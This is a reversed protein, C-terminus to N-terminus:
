DPIKKNRRVYDLAVLLRSYIKEVEQLREETIEDNTESAFQLEIVGYYEKTNLVPILRGYVVELGVSNLYNACDIPLNINNLSLRTFKNSKYNFLEEEINSLDVNQLRKRNSTIGPKTVEYPVSMKTFHFSGISTGNHFLGVTIRDAATLGRLELLISEIKKRQKIGDKTIYAIVNGTTTQLLRIKTLHNQIIVVFTLLVLLLNLISINGTEQYTKITDRIIQIEAENTNITTQGQAFLMFYSTRYQIVM